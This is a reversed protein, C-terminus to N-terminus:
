DDIVQQKANHCGDVVIAALSSIEIAVVAASLSQEDTQFEEKWAPLM